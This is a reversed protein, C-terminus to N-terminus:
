ASASIDRGQTAAASPSRAEILRRGAEDLTTGVRVTLIPATERRRV